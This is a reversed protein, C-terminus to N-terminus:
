TQFYKYYTIKEPLSNSKGSNWTKDNPDYIELSVFIGTHDWM